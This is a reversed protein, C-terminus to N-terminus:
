QNASVNARAFSCVSDSNGEIRAACAAAKTDQEIKLHFPGNSVKKKRKQQSKLTATFHENKSSPTIERRFSSLQDVGVSPDEVETGGEEKGSFCL